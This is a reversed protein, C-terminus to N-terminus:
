ERLVEWGPRDLRSWVQSSRTAVFNPPPKIESSPCYSREDSTLHPGSFGCSIRKVEYGHRRLLAVVDSEFGLHDEFVITTIRERDLLRRAGELVQLEHGEVDLKLVDIDVNSLIADLTTTRISFTQGERSGNSEGIHSGSITVPVTLTATGAACSAGAEIIEVPAGAPDVNSRLTSVVDPHPELAYVQGTPGARRQMLTTIYGINAGVDVGIGGPSLLRSVTETVCLDYVGERWIANGIAESPDIRLTSGWPLPVTTPTPAQVTRLLRRLLQGPCRIYQPKSLRSLRLAFSLM